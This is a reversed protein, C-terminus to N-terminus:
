RSPLNCLSDLSARQTPSPSPAVILRPCTLVNQFYEDTADISPRVTRGRRWQDIANAAARTAASDVGIRGLQQGRPADDIATLGRVRWSTSLHARDAALVTLAVAVPRGGARAANALAAARADIDIAKTAITLQERRALEEVYWPAALLPMTVITVDRRRGEVRQAYWLPYSDNDGAVFLVARPPLEDLLAAAVERPLSAEPEARRNVASWNLAVPLAAVAAGVLAPMAFRRALVMAGMAAWIGWAWFGLAFFYDRDRAEHRADEPVFRWAFSRGVKFNLYVLVGLSGCLFLLGVARWGRRDTRRHWASGAVGLAAFVVTGLVRAFTPIVTPGLSLAVQWDAYEFWNALQLWAPAQRPWLGAVDYQERGVVYAVGRWTNPNGQNVLPDHRARLLLFLLASCAVVGVTMVSAARRLRHARPEPGPAFASAAAILLGIVVLGSAARSAGVIAVCLGALACGASWDRPGGIRDTALLVVVPAAVLASLHLPLALALLYAALVAWKRDGTEGARDGALIAGLSLLLSASYVETETANQWVTSMSGAAIAAAFGVIASRSSRGIWLATVGGAGAACVASFLNTATAFPLFWFLRAWANLAIVFLPTGPPHPIGLVRAAAIFEGADWFTVSPALTAVYIALLAAGALLAARRATV